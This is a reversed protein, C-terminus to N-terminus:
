PASEVPEEEIIRGPQRVNTGPEQTITDGLERRKASALASLEEVVEPQISALDTTM